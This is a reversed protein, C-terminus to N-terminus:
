EGPDILEEVKAQNIDIAKVLYKPENYKNLAEQVGKLSNYTCFKIGAIEWTEELNKDLYYKTPILGFCAYVRLAYKRM